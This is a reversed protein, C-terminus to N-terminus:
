RSLPRFSYVILVTQNIFGGLIRNFYIRTSIMVLDYFLERADKPQTPLKHRKTYVRILVDTPINLKDHLQRITELSLRRKKSLIESARSKKIPKLKM